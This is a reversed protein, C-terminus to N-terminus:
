FQAAMKVLPKIIILRTLKKAISSNQISQALEPSYRYYFKIFRSGIESNSLINDRFKRLQIVDPHNYDGYCATAIFCGEQKVKPEIVPTSTSWNSFIFKDFSPVYFSDIILDITHTTDEGKFHLSYAIGSKDTTEVGIKDNVLSAGKIAGSVILKPLLGAVPVRDLGSLFATSFKPKVAQFTIPEKKNFSIIDQRSVKSFIAFHNKLVDYAETLPNQYAEYCFFIFNTTSIIKLMLGLTVLDPQAKFYDNTRLYVGPVVQKKWDGHSTEAIISNGDEQVVSVFDSANIFALKEFSVEM